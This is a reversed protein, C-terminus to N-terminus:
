PAGKYIAEPCRMQRDAQELKTYRKCADNLLSIIASEMGAQRISAAEQRSEIKVFRALHATNQAEIQQVLFLRMVFFTVASGGAGGGLWSVVGRYRLWWVRLKKMTTDEDRWNRRGHQPNM